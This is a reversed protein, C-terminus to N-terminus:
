NPSMNKVHTSLNTVDSKLREVFSVLLPEPRNLFRFWSNRTGTQNQAHTPSQPQFSCTEVALSIQGDIQYAKLRARNRARVLLIAAELSRPVLNRKSQNQASRKTIPRCFVRLKGFWDHSERAKCTPCCTNAELKSQNM